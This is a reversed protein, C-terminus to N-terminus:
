TFLTLPRDGIGADDMARLSAVALMDLLSDEDRRGFPIMGVGVAAVKRM